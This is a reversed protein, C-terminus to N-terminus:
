HLELDIKEYTVNLFVYPLFWKISYAAKFIYDQRDVAWRLNVTIAM